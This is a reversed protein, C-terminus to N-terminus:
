NGCCCLKEREILQQTMDAVDAVVQECDNNMQRLLVACQNSGYKQHFLDLLRIRMSKTTNEDFMLGFVMIGGVLACCLNGAGFGSGVGKCMNFSQESVRINYIIEAAKLVSQSCNFGERFFKVALNRM